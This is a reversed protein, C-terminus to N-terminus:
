STVAELKVKISLLPIIELRLRGNRQKIKKMQDM